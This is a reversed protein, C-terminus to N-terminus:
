PCGKDNHAHVHLSPSRHCLQEMKNNVTALIRSSSTKVRDATFWTKSQGETSLIIIHKTKVM